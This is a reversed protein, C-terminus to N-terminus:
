TRRTIAQEKLMATMIPNAATIAIASRTFFHNNIVALVDPARKQADIPNVFPAFSHSFPYLNPKTNRVRFNSVESAVSM